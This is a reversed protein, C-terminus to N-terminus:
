IRCLHHILHNFDLPEMFKSDVYHQCMFKIYQPTQDHRLLEITVNGYLQNMRGDTNVEKTNLKRWSPKLYHREISEVQQAKDFTRVDSTYTVYQLEVVKNRFYDFLHQFDLAETEPLYRLMFGNTGGSNIVRFLAVNENGNRSQDYQEEVFRLVNVRAESELWLAYNMRDNNSRKLEERM